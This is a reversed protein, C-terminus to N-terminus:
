HRRTVMHPSAFSAHEVHIVGGRDGVQELETQVHTRAREQLAQVEESAPRETSARLRRQQQRKQIKEKLQSKESETM